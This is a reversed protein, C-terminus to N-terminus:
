QCSSHSRYARATSNVNGGRGHIRAKRWPGGVRGQGHGLCGAEKTHMRVRDAGPAIGAPQAVVPDVRAAVSAIAQTVQLPEQGRGLGAARRGWAGGCPPGRRGSIRVVPRRRGSPPWTRPRASTAARRVRGIRRVASSRWRRSRATRSRSVRVARVRRPGRHRGRGDAGAIIRSPTSWARTTMQSSTPPRRTPGRPRRMAASSDM